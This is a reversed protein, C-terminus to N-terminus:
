QLGTARTTLDRTLSKWKEKLREGFEEVSEHKGQQMLSYTKTAQEFEVRAWENWANYADQLKQLQAPADAMQRCWKNLQRNHYQQLYRYKAYYPSGKRNNEKISQDKCAKSCYVKNRQSKRFAKKCCPCVAIQKVSETPYNAHCFDLSLYDYVDKVAYIQVVRSNLLAFTTTVQKPMFAAQGGNPELHASTTILGTRESFADGLDSFTQQVLNRTHTLAEKTNAQDNEYNSIFDTYFLNVIPQGSIIEIAEADSCSSLKLIPEEPSLRYKAFYNYFNISETGIEQKSLVIAKDGQLAVQMLMGDCFAINM